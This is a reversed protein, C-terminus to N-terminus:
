FPYGIGINFVLNNRRWDKKGPAFTDIVWRDGEERYPKRLAIGLDFRLV